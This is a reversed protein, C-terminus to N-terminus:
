PADEFMAELRALALEHRVHEAEFAPSDSPEDALVDLNRNHQHNEADVLEDLTQAHNM